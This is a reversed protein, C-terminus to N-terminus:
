NKLNYKNMYKKYLEYQFTKDDFIKGEFIICKIKQSVPDLIDGESLILSAIKGEEISGLLNDIGLIKAANYTISKLAQEKSLGYPVAMGAVFPLNRSQMAEM